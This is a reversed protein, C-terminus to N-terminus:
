DLVFEIIAVPAGDRKRARPSKIIRTYGGRRNSMKPVIHYFLEYAADEGIRAILLRYAALTQKKALTVLKDTLRKLERARADTTEIKKNLILHRLLSKLFLKRDGRMRGFKRGKKLHRM